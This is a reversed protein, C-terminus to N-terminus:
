QDLWDRTSQEGQLVRGVMGLAHDFSKALEWKDILIDLLVTAPQGNVPDRSIVLRVVVYDDTATVTWLVEQLEEDFFLPKPIRGAALDDMWGIMNKDLDDSADTRCIVPEYGETTATATWWGDGHLAISISIKATM